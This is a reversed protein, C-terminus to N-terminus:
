YKITITEVLGSASYSFDVMYTHTNSIGSRIKSINENKTKIGADDETGDFQVKTVTMAPGGNSNDYEVTPLKEKAGKNSAANTIVKDLLAKVNSGLQKGEYYTFTANFTSADLEELQNTNMQGRALNFVYIGLAIILISLLIAGAIILAKSANEM